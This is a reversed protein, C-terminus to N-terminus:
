ACAAAQVDPPCVPTRRQGQQGGTAQAQLSDYRAPWKLPETAPDRMSTDGGGGEGGAAQWGKLARVRCMRRRPLGPCGGGAAWGPLGWQKSCLGAVQM